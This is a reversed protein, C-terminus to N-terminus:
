YVIGVTKEYDMVREIRHTFSHFLKGEVCMEDGACKKYVEACEMREREILGEIRLHNFALTKQCFEQPLPKDFTSLIFAGIMLAAGIFAVTTTIWHNRM